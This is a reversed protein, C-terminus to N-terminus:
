RCGSVIICAQVASINMKDLWDYWKVWISNWASFENPISKQPMVLLGQLFASRTHVEIGNDTLRKLWGSTVLRRDVLNLPAQVIGLTGIVPIVELESPSYISVGIKQVKGSEKLSVLAERVSEDIFHHSRHLLIGYLNSIKLRHLSADVHQSIWREVDTVNDPIYPL